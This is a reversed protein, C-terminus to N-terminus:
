SLTRLCPKPGKPNLAKLAKLAKLAGKPGKSNLARPAAGSIRPREPPFSLTQLFFFALPSGWKFPFKVVLLKFKFQNRNIVEGIKYDLGLPNEGEGLKQIQTESLQIDFNNRLNELFENTSFSNTQFSKLIYEIEPIKKPNMDAIFSELSKIKKDIDVPIDNLEITQVYDNLKNLQKLIDIVRIKIIVTTLQEVYSTANASKITNDLFVGQQYFAHFENRCKRIDEFLKNNQMKKLIVLSQLVPISEYKLTQLKQQKPDIKINKPFRFLTINDKHQFISPQKQIRAYLACLRDITCLVTYPKDKSVKIASNV